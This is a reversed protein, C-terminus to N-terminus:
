LCVIPKLHSTLYTDSDNNLTLVKAETFFREYILTSISSFRVFLTAYVRGEFTHELINFPVSALSITRYDFPM